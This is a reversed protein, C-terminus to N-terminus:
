NLKVNKQKEPDFKYGAGSMYLHYRGPDTIMFGFRGAPDTLQTDSLSNANDFLKVFIRPIGQGTQSDKIIGWGRNKTVKIYISMLIIVVYFVFIITHLLSREIYLAVSSTILGLISM